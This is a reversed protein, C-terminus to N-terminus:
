SAEDAKHEGGGGGSSQKFHRRGALASITANPNRAATIQQPTVAFLAYLEERAAIMKPTITPRFPM